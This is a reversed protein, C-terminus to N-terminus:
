NSLLFDGSSLSGSGVYVYSFSFIYTNGIISSFVQSLYEANVTAGGLYYYSGSLATFNYAGYSIGSATSQVSGTATSGSQVCHIWSSFNGTEFGGNSLLEMGLAATDQISVDDIGFYGSDKRYHM